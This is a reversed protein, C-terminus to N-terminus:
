TSHIDSGGGGCGDVGSGGRGFGVLWRTGGGNGERDVSGLEEDVDDSCADEEEDEGLDGEESRLRSRGRSPRERENVLPLSDDEIGGVDDSGVRVGGSGGGGSSILELSHGLPKAFCDCEERELVQAEGVLGGLSVGPEHAGEIIGANAAPGLM